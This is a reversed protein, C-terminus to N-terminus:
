DFNASIVSTFKGRNNGKDVGQIRFYLKARYTLVFPPHMLSFSTDTTTISHPFSGPVYGYEIIYGHFDFEENQLWDVALFHKKPRQVSIGTPTAPPYALMQPIFLKTIEIHGLPSPHQGGERTKDYEKGRDELLTKWGDPPNYNMFTTYTDIYKISKAGAMTIIGANLNKINNIVRPINLSDNRPPITSIVINMKNALAANVIYRLNELSSSVSFQNMRADNTGEMLLFYKAPNFTLEYVIRSAGDLTFEGPIGRNYYDLLGYEDALMDQIKQPYALEPHHYEGTPDEPLDNMRMKGWTISDGFALYTNIVASPTDSQRPKIEALVRQRSICKLAVTDSDFRCRSQYYLTRIDLYVRRNERILTFTKENEPTQTLNKVQGSSFDYCFIDDNGARNGKFFLFQPRDGSLLLRTEHCIFTYGGAALVRARGETSDFFCLSVDGQRDNIWSVFFRDGAVEVYPFINDGPFDRSLNEYHGNDLVIHFGDASPVTELRFTRDIVQFVRMQDNEEQSLAPFALLCLFLVVAWLIRKPKSKMPLIIDSYDGCKM